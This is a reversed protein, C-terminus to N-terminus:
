GRTLYFTGEARRGRWQGEFSGRLGLVPSFQATLSGSLDDDAVTVTFPEGIEPILTKQSFSYSGLLPSSVRGKITGDRTVNTITLSVPISYRV